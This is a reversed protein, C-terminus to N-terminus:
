QLATGCITRKDFAPQIESIDRSQEVFAALRAMDQVTVAEREVAVGLDRLRALARSFSEPTMGLRNAILAKEYPLAITVPRREGFM